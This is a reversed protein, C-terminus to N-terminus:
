ARRRAVRAACGYPVPGESQSSARNSATKGGRSRASRGKSDVPNWGATQRRPHSGVRPGRERGAKMDVRSAEELWVFGKSKQLSNELVVCPRTEALEIRARRLPSGQARQREDNRKQRLGSGGGEDPLALPGSTGCRAVRSEGVGPSSVWAGGASVPAGGLSAKQAPGFSM